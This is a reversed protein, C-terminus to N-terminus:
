CSRTVRWNFRTPKFIRTLLDGFLTVDGGAPDFSIVRRLTPVARTLGVIVEAKEGATFIAAAGGTSDSLNLGASSLTHTGLGVNGSAGTYPVYNTALATFNNNLAAGAPSLGTNPTVVQIGGAITTLSYSM